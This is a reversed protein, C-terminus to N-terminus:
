APAIFGAAASAASAAALRGKKKGVCFASFDLMRGLEVAM